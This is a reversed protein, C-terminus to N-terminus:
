FIVLLMFDTNINSAEFIDKLNSQLSDVVLDLNWYLSIDKNDNTILSEDIKQVTKYKCFFHSEKITYFLLLKDELITLYKNFVLEFIDNSDYIHKYYALKHTSWDIELEGYKKKYEKSNSAFYLWLKDIDNYTINPVEIVDVSTPKGRFKNLIKEQIYTNENMDQYKILYKNILFQFCNTNFSTIYVYNNIM